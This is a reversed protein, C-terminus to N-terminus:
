RISFRLEQVAGSASVNVVSPALPREGGGCLLGFEWTGAEPLRIVFAAPGTRTGIVIQLGSRSIPGTARIQCSSDDDLMVRVTVPSGLEIDGLEVVPLSARPLPVRTVGYTGGGIRLEGGGGPALALSFRGDPATRADGGKLDIPDQATMYAAPDPMAVVDVGAAPKGGALVRGHAIGSANLRLVALRDGPRLVVSGRGFQPHWAVIEYDAEGLGEIRFTGDAAAITESAIVRRPPPDGAAVRVPLPDLLRFATVLAGAATEGGTSVVTAALTQADDLTVYLPVAATGGAVDALALFQPGSRASRIELWAEPPSSDGAVWVVSPVVTTVRLDTLPASDLRVTRARHASPAILRGGAVRVRPPPGAGRDSVILLRGWHSRRLVATSEATVVASLLSAGNQSLAIGPTDLPVGLCEWTGTGRWGCAPWPAAVGDIPVWEITSGPASAVPASGTVTRRWTQELPRMVLADSPAVPGDLLYSGDARYLFVLVAPATPLTLVLRAGDRVMSLQLPLPMGDQRWQYASVRSVEAPVDPYIVQTAIM